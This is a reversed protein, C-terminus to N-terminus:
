YLHQKSTVDQANSMFELLLLQRLYRTTLPQSEKFAYNDFSYVAANRFSLYEFHVIFYKGM